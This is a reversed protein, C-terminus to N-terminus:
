CIFQKEGRNKSLIQLLHPWIEFQSSFSFTESMLQCKLLNILSSGTTKEEGAGAGIIEIDLM